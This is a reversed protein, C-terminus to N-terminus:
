IIGNAVTLDKWNSNLSNILEIKKQRSFNKIQKERSIANYVDTFTEYYIVRNINYKATFSNKNIKTKHQNDRNLINNTVGTYLVTNRPHNTAIYTFYYKQM